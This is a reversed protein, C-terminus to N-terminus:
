DEWIEKLPLMVFEREEMLPHPIILDP